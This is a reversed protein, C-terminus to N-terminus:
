GVLAERLRALPGPASQRREAPTPDSGAERARDLLAEYRAILRSERRGSARLHSRLAANEAQLREVDTRDADAADPDDAVVTDAAVHDDAPHEDTRDADNPITRQPLPDDVSQDSGADTPARARRDARSATPHDHTHSDTAM